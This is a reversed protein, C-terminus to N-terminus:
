VVSNGIRSPSATATFLYSKRPQHPLLGYVDVETRTSVYVKGNAMTPPMFQRANGAPDRNGSSQARNWYETALDTTSYAHM